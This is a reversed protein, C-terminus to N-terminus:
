RPEAPLNSIHWQWMRPGHVCVGIKAEWWIEQEPRPAPTPHPAPKPTQYHWQGFDDAIAHNFDVDVGAVRHDNSYQQLQARHDWQGGSWAYTQWGYAILRADFLRSVTWYGGYAGTRAVGLVGAAGRFYDAVGAAQDPTEDFDVAFYLPRSAPMGAATAQAHAAQADARGADTGDLARRATTEWVAVIDISGAALERAEGATINKSPDNSLYRAAFSSGVARHAAPSVHGWAYDLGFRM